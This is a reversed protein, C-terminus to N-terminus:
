CTNGSANRLPMQPVCCRNRRETQLDDPSPRGKYSEFANLGIIPSVKGLVLLVGNKELFMQFYVFDTM